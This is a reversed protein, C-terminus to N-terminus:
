NRTKKIKKIENYYISKNSSYGLSLLNNDNKLIALAIAKYSPALNENQL